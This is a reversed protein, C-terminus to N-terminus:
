VDSEGEELLQQTAAVHHPLFVVAKPCLEHVVPHQILEEVVAVVIKFLGLWRKLVVVVTHAVLFVVPPPAIDCNDSPAVAIVVGGVGGIGLAPQPLPGVVDDVVDLDEVERVLVDVIGLDVILLGVAYIHCLDHRLGDVDVGDVADENAAAHGVTLEM